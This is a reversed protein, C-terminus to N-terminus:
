KFVNYHEFRSTLSDDGLETVDNLYIEYERIINEKEM